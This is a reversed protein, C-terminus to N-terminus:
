FPMIQIAINSTIRRTRRFKDRRRAARGEGNSLNFIRIIQIPILLIFEDHTGQNRRKRLVEQSMNKTEHPKPLM